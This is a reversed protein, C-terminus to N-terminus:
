LLEKEMIINELKKCINIYNWKKMEREAKVRMFYLDTELLECVKDVFENFAEANYINSYDLIFGNDGLIEKNAGNNMCVTLCGAAGAEVFIRGFTEHYTSPAIYLGASKFVYALQKMSVPRLLNVNKINSLRRFVDQYDKNKEPDNYLEFSSYIDIHLDSNKTKLKIEEFLDAIVDLGKYPISAFVLKNIDRETYGQYLYYDIPNGLVVLKDPNVRFYKIFTQKQWESVCIIKDLLKEVNLNMMWKVNPQDYADHSIYYIKKKEIFNMIEPPVFRNLIIVDSQEAYPVFNSINDIFINKDQCKEKLNNLIVVQHGLFSMGKGLLLATTESGGLCKNYPTELDFELGNDLILIKM